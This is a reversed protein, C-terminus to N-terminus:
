ASDGLFWLSIRRRFSERPSAEYGEDTVSESLETDDILDDLEALTYSRRRCGGFWVARRLLELGRHSGFVIRILDPDGAAFVSQALSDRKLIVTKGSPLAVTLVPESEPLELWPRADKTVETVAEPGAPWLLEPTFIWLVFWAAEASILGALSFRPFILACLSYNALGLSFSRCSALAIIRWRAGGSEAECYMQKLEPSRNGVVLVNIFAACVGYVIQAVAWVWFKTWGSGHVVAPYSKSWLTLTVAFQVAYAASLGLLYPRLEGVSGSIGHAVAILTQRWYWAASRGSRFEEVLDGALAAHQRVGGLRELLWDALAPPRRQTM